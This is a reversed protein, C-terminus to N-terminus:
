RVEPIFCVVGEDAFSVYRMDRRDAQKRDATRSANAVPAADAAGPEGPSSLQLPFRSRRGVPVTTSAQASAFASISAVWQVDQVRVVAVPLM